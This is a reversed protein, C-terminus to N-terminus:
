CDNDLSAASVEHSHVSVHLGIIYPPELVIMYSFRNIKVGKLLQNEISRTLTSFIRVHLVDGRGWETPRRTTGQGRSHM